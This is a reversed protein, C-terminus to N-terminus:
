VFAVRLCRLVFCILCVMFLSVFVVSLLLVFNCGSSVWLLYLAAYNCTYLVFMFAVVGYVGLRYFCGLYGVCVFRIGFLYVFGLLILCYRLAFCNLTILSFLLFCFLLCWIVGFVIFRLLGSAFLNFLDIM